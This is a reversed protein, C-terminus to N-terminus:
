KEQLVEIFNKTDTTLMSKFYKNVYSNLADKMENPIKHQDIHYEGWEKPFPSDNNKDYVPEKDFILGKNLIENLKELKKANKEKRIMFEVNEVFRKDAIEDRPFIVLWGDPDNSMTCPEHYYEYTLFSGICYKVIEANTYHRSNEDKYKHYNIDNYIKTEKGSVEKKNEKM